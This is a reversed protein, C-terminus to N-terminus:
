QLLAAILNLLVAQAFEIQLVPDVMGMVRALERHPLGMFAHIDRMDIQGDGNLDGVLVLYFDRENKPDIKADLENKPDYFAAIHYYGKKLLGSGLKYERTLEIAGLRTDGAHRGLLFWGDDLSLSAVFLLVGERRFALFLSGDDLSRSASTIRGTPVLGGLEEFGPDGPRYTKSHPLLRSVGDIIQQPTIKPPPEPKPPQPPGPPPGPPGALMVTGIALLVLAAGIVTLVRYVKRM